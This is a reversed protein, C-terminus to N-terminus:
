TGAAKAVADIEERKLGFVNLTVVCDQRLVLIVDGANRPNVFYSAHRAVRPLVIPPKRALNANSTKMGEYFTKLDRSSTRSIAEPGYTTVSLTRRGDATAWMCVSVGLSAPQSAPVAQPRIRTGLAAELEAQTAVTCANVSRPGSRGQACLGAPAAALALALLVAATLRAAARAAWPRNM